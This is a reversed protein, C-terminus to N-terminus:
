GPWLSRIAAIGQAGHGRATPLDDVTLGGIAYIPIAVQERLAVFGDWGLTAAGPHTATERLPGLVAFDCGLAQAADLEVADHCSAAVTGGQMRVRAMATAIGAERLLAARLHLGVRLHTALAADGNVLVDAGAARCREVAADALRMWAAADLGPARLQVRRIGGALAAELGALWSAADIPAPTVLYQAPQLLAAVVPRDAPPMPYGPLDAPAVWALAQGELGRPTGRHAVEHVDLVLRKDPYRQPVRIVPACPVAEIGLEEHLERALASAPAEGPEVKGGPFEWLGALDRAQTRQALLVRGRADRIVGAVVHICKGEGQSSLPLGPPPQKSQM